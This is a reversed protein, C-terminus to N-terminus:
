LANFSEHPQIGSNKCYVVLQRINHAAHRWLLCKVSAKWQLVNQTFTCMRTDLAHAYVRATHADTHTQQIVTTQFKVRPALQIWSLGREHGREMRHWAQMTRGSDVAEKHCINVRGSLFMLCTKRHIPSLCQGRTAYIHQGTLWVM